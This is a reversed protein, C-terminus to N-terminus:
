GNDLFHHERERRRPQLVNGRSATMSTPPMRASRPILCSTGTVKAPYCARKKRLRTTLVIPFQKCTQRIHYGRLRAPSLQHLLSRAFYQLSAAINDFSYSITPLPLPSPRSLSIRLVPLRNAASVVWIILTGAYNSDHLVDFTSTSARGLQM